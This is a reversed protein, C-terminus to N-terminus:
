AVKIFRAESIEVAELGRVDAYAQLQKVASGLLDIDDASLRWYIELPSPLNHEEGGGVPVLRRGDAYQIIVGPPIAAIFEGLIAPSAQAVRVRIIRSHAKPHLDLRAPEAAVVLRPSLEPHWEGINITRALAAIAGSGGEIGLLAQWAPGIRHPMMRILSLGREGLEALCQRPLSRSGFGQLALLGYSEPAEPIVRALVDNWFRGDAHDRKARHARASPMSWLCLSGLAPADDAAEVEPQDLLRQVVVGRDHGASLSSCVQNIKAASTGSRFVLAAISPSSFSELLCARADTRNM